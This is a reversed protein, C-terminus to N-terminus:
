VWKNKLSRSRSESGLPRFNEFESGSMGFQIPRSDKTPRSVFRKSKDFKLM